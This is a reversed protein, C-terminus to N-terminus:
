DTQWYHDIPKVKKDRVDQLYKELNFGAKELEVALNLARGNRTFIKWEDEQRAM